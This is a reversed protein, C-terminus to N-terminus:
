LKGTPVHETEVIKYRQRIWHRADDRMKELLAAVRTQVTRNSVGLEHAITETTKGQRLRGLIEQEGSTLEKGPQVLLPARPMGHEKTEQIV